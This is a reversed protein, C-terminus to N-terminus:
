YFKGYAFQFIYIIIISQLAAILDDFVVGFHGSYKRDIVNAPFLKLIDFFRFLIFASFIQIFSLDIFIIVLMQGVFEDIIIESRDSKGLKTQYIKIAYFSVLLFFMFIFYVIYIPFMYILLIGILVGVLSGLTGPMKTFNGLGFLTCMNKMLDFKM